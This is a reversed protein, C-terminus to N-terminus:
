SWVMLGILMGVVVSMKVGLSGEGSYLVTYSQLLSCSCTAGTCQVCKGDVLRYGVACKGCRSEQCVACNELCGACELGVFLYM